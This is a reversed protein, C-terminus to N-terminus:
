FSPQAVQPMAEGWPEGWDTTAVDCHSPPQSVQAGALFHQDIGFNLIGLHESGL